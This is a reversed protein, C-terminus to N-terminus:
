DDHNQTHSPLELHGLQYGYSGVFVQANGLAFLALLGIALKQAM